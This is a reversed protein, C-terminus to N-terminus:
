VLQRRNNDNDLTNTTVRMKGRSRARDLTRSRSRSRESRSRGRSKRNKDTHIHSSMLSQCSSRQRNSSKRAGSMSRERSSKVKGKLPHSADNSHLCSDFDGTGTLIGQALSRNKFKRKIIRKNRRKSTRLFDRLFYGM